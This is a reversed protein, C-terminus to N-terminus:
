LLFPRLICSSSPPTPDLVAEAAPDTRRPVKVAPLSRFPALRRPIERGLLVLFLLSPLLCLLSAPRRCLRCSPRRRHCPRNSRAAPLVSRRDMQRVLYFCNPCRDERKPRDERRQRRPKWRRISDAEEEGKAALGEERIGVEEGEM